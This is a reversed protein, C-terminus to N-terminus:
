PDQLLRKRALLCKACQCEGNYTNVSQWSSFNGSGSELRVAVRVFYQQGVSLGTINHPSSSPTNPLATYSSTTTGYQIRYQPNTVGCLNSPPSWNVRIVGRSALPELSVSLPAGVAAFLGYVLCVTVTYSCQLIVRFPWLAFNICHYVSYM